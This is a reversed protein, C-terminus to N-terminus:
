RVHDGDQTAHQGTLTLYVEELSAGLPRTVANRQRLLETVRPRLAPETIDVRLRNGAPTVKVGDGVQELERRLTRDEGVSEVVIREAGGAHAEILAGVSGEAVVRGAVMVAVRDCLYEVEEMHHSTIMVTLGAENRARLGEWVQRRAAPDLGTTLEDLLVLRPRGILALVLSLRQRQGGSLKDVRQGQKDALGYEALLERWDAPHRYFGAFLRCLEGVRVRPPYTTHQLQVGVLETIRARDTRPDLGAVRVTGQGPRRLGAVTEMLSTKGAGNPGIIGLVEGAAVRLDVDAVATLEGYRLSLGRVEVDVGGDGDM